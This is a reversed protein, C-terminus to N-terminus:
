NVRKKIEDIDEVLKLFHEEINEKLHVKLDKRLINKKECYSCDMIKFDCYSNHADLCDITLVKDCGDNPCFIKINSLTNYAFKNCEMIDDMKSHCNCLPCTIRSYTSTSLVNLCSTCFIHSCEIIQSANNPILFEKCIHCIFDKNNADNEHVFKLSSM